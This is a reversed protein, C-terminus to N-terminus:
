VATTTLHQNLNNHNSFRFVLEKNTMKDLNNLNLNADITKRNESMCDENDEVSQEKKAKEKEQNTFNMEMYSRSRRLTPVDYGLESISRPDSQLSLLDLCSTNISSVKNRRLLPLLAYLDNKYRMEQLKRPM